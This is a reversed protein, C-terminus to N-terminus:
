NVRGIPCIVKLVGVAGTTMRDPGFGVYDAYGKVTNCNVTRGIPCIVKLVGVAGTTMRDPGFGM